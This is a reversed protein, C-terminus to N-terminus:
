QMGSCPRSQSGLGCIRDYSSIVATTCCSAGRPSFRRRIVPPSGVMRGSRTVSTPMSRATGPMSSMASEVLPTFSGCIAAANRAAPSSRTFRLASESCGARMASIARRSKDNLGTTAARAAVSAPSSGSFSLTTIIRPRLSSSISSKAASVISCGHCTRKMSSMGTPSMAPVSNACTTGLSSTSARM